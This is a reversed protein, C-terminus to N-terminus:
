PISHLAQEAHVLDWTMGMQRFMDIAQILSTRAREGEGQAQLMRAYSVYSRSLEPKAGIGQQLRIAELMAREASEPDTSDRAFLAEALTRLALTKPYQEGVAEAVRIAEYCLAPVGECEGLALLCAALYSTRWALWFNTGLQEALAAGEELLVRGRAPEGALTHVRGQTTKALYLRFLNGM